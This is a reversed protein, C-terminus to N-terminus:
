NAGMLLNGAIGAVGATFEVRRNAFTVHTVRIRMLRLQADVALATMGFLCPRRRNERMVILRKEHRARMFPKIARTAMFVQDSEFHGGNLFAAVTVYGDARRRIMVPIFNEAVAERAM